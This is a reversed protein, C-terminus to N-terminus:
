SLPKGQPYGAAELNKLMQQKLSEVGNMVPQTAAGNHGTTHAAGQNPNHQQAARNLFDQKAQDSQSLAQQSQAQQGYRALAADRQVLGYAYDHQAQVNSLGMQEARQVYTAYRRGWESLAPRGTQPDMLVRGQEDREHMWGSNSQIVERAQSQEQYGGLHKQIMRQAIETAIQEIGPQLAKVPDQSFRDLFGRQHDLWAQYKAAIMPDNGPRVRIEGTVPDAYLKQVWSPDYEPAKWWQQSQQQQQRRAEEQQRQWATFQERHQLYEQGYGALQRLDPAQRMMEAIHRMAAQDDAFQQQPLEVGFNRLAERFGQQTQAQQTQQAAVDPTTQSTVPTAPATQTAPTQAAVPQTTTQPEIPTTTNEGAM